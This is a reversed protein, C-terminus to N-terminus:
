TGPATQNIEELVIDGANGLLCDGRAGGKAKKFPKQWRDQKTRMVTHSTCSDVYTIHQLPNNRSCISQRTTQPDQFELGWFNGNNKTDRYTNFALSIKLNHLSLSSQSPVRRHTM